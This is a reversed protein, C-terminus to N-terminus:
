DHCSCEKCRGCCGKKKKEYVIVKCREPSIELGKVGTLYLNKEPIGLCSVHNNLASRSDPAITTIQATHIFINGTGTYIQAIVNSVEAATESSFHGSLNVHLNGNRHSANISTTQEM